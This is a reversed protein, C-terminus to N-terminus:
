SSLACHTRAVKTRISAIQRKSNDLKRQRHAQGFFGPEEGRVSEIFLELEQMTRNIEEAQAALCNCVQGGVDYSPSSGTESKSAIEELKAHVLDCENGLSKVEEALNKVTTDVIRTEQDLRSLSSGLEWAAKSLVLITPATSVATFSTVVM